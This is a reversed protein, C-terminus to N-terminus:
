DCLVHLSGHQAPIFGVTATATIVGQVIGNLFNEPMELRNIVDGALVINRHNRIRGPKSFISVKNLLPLLAIM